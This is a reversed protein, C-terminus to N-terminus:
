VNESTEDDESNGLQEPTKVDLHLGVLRAALKVNQGNKGIALSVNSSDVIVLASTNENSIKVSLIKAPCLASRIYKETDDYWNVLDIKEGNLESLITNIRIGNEGVCSGIAEIEPDSSMVAVKSRKGPERTINIIKVIGDAIEPIEQEFLCKIFNPNSRSVFITVGKPHHKIDTVYLKIRDHIGYIEGQIQEKEPLVAKTEGLDVVINNKNIEEVIGSIIKGKKNLYKNFLADREIELFKQSVVQRATQAAIRGFDKPTIVVEIEDDINYSPDIEQADDLSIECKNNKVEEVVKKHAIVRIEGTEEDIDVDINQTIGFDKRCAVALSTKLTDLIIDKDINKEFAVARIASLLDSSM